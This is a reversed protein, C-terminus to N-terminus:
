GCKGDAPSFYSDAKERQKGTATAMRATAVADTESPGKPACEHLSLHKLLTEPPPLFPFAPFILSHLVPVNASLAQPLGSARAPLVLWTRSCSVPLSGRCLTRKRVSVNFYSHTSTDLRSRANSSGLTTHNTSSSQKPANFSSFPTPVSVRM